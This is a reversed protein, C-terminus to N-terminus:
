RGQQSQARAPIPPAATAATSAATLALLLLLLVLTLMATAIGRMAFVAVGAKPMIRGPRCSTKLLLLVCLFLFPSFVLCLIHRMHTLEHSCARPGFRM